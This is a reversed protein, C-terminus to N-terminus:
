STRRRRAKAFAGLVAGSAPQVPPMSPLPPRWVARAREVGDPDRLLAIDGTNNWVARRRGWWLQGAGDRGSGTWLTLTDGPALVTTPPFRYVHPRRAADQLTWGSLDLQLAGHNHLRVHEHPLDVGAPDAHIEVVVPAVYSDVVQLGGAALLEVHLFGTLRFRLAVQAAVASGESLRSSRMHHLVGRHEAFRMRRLADAPDSVRVPGLTSLTEMAAPLLLGSLAQAQAHQACVCVLDLDISAPRHESYGALGGPRSLPMRAVHAGGEAVGLADDFASAHVFVQARLGTSPGVFAPGRHWAVGDAIAAQLGSLLAAELAGLNM